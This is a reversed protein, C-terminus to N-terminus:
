VMQFVHQDFQSDEGIKPTLLINLVEFGGGLQYITIKQNNCQTKHLHNKLM